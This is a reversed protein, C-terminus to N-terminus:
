QEACVNNQSRRWFIAGVALLILFAQIGLTEATPYIGLIDITPVPLNELQTTAIVGGEQLERIGGGAFSVALLYM